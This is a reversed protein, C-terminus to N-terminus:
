IANPNTWIVEHSPLKNTGIMQYHPVFPLWDAGENECVIVQGSRERCWDALEPYDLNSHPYYSGAKNNYPPDVFWTTEIDPANSYDGEIIQWHRIAEVQSAIRHRRMDNWGHKGPDAQMSKTLTRAPFKNGMNLHFGVLDRAPKCTGKPLDDVCIVPPLALIESPKAAILFRWIEAVVPYKEILVVDHQYHRLAYGASGAFPEIITQYQPAPYKPAARWKGGYYPWFPKLFKPNEM